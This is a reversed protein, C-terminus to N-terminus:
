RGPRGHRDGPVWNWRGAIAMVAPVMLGRILTADVLVATALGLGIMKLIVIEASVFAGFVVVMVMAASTIISGTTALGQATALRNDGTEDYIEKIRSLLFIEYDMSLGFTICFMMLPITLPIASLPAELGVLPAGWGLQFVAVLAGYGCGVALLNMLVAKIPILWSRYAVFLVVLTVGIVLGAAVPFADRMRDNFDNYYAPTGGVELSLGGGLQKAALDRALQQARDIQVGDAPIVQFLTATRDKSLFLEAIQPFQAIAQDLNRYLLAYHVPKLDERLDVPSLVQGVREDAKLDRSLRLLHPLTSMSVAPDGEPARIVLDIPAIASAQGMRGLVELGTRSEMGEPFWNGAIFGTKGVTAPSALLLVLSGSIVLTLVPRRMVVEALWAWGAEARANKLPRALWAPWDIRHGLLSLVAPLLTIAALVSVVVVIAGGLGISRTEMLPTALLGLLGIMVTLGSYCVAVGATGVVEAIAEETTRGERLERFRSVMLLSYDIGVALGIMTVINQLLNSLPMFLSLGFALGLAVTTTVLGVMLPVGAAALSGFAI